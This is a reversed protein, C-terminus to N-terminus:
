GALYYKIVEREGRLSGPVRYGGRRERRKPQNTYILGLSSSINIRSHKSLAFFGPVKKYFPLYMCVCVCVCVTRAGVYIFLMTLPRLFFQNEFQEEEYRCFSREKAGLNLSNRFFVAVFSKGPRISLICNIIYIHIDFFAYIWIYIAAQLQFPEPSAAGDSTVGQEWTLRTLKLFSHM